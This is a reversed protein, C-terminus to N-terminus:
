KLDEKYGKAKLYKPLDIAQWKGQFLRKKEYVGDGDRGGDPGTNGEITRAVINRREVVFGIHGKRSPNVFFILDGRDGYKKVCGYKEADKYWNWVAAPGKPLHQSPVGADLLSTTVFTACWANGPALGLRALIREVFPGRNNGGVERQGVKSRACHLARMHAPLASYEEDTLYSVPSKRM